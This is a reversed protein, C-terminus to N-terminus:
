WGRNLALKGAIRMSVAWSGSDGLGGGRVGGRVGVVASVGNERTCLLASVIVRDSRTLLIASVSVRDCLM